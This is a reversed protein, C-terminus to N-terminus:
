QPEGPMQIHLIGVQSSNSNRDDVYINAFDVFTVLGGQIVNPNPDGSFLAPIGRCPLTTNAPCSAAQNQVRQPPKNGWGVILSSGRPYSNDGLVYRIQSQSWCSISEKKDQLECPCHM